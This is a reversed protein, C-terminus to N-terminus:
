SEISIVEKTIKKKNQPSVIEEPNYMIQAINTKISTILM